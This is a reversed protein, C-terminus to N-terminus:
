EGSAVGAPPLVFLGIATLILSLGLTPVSKGQDPRRMLLSELLPLATLDSGVLLPPSYM